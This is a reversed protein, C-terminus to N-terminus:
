RRELASASGLRVGLRKQLLHLELAVRRLVDGPWSQIAGRMGLGLVLVRLVQSGRGRVCVAATEISAEAGLILTPASLTIGHMGGDDLQLAFCHHGCGIITLGGTVVTSWGVWKRGHPMLALAITNVLLAFIAQGYQLNEGDRPQASTVHQSSEAFWGVPITGLTVLSPM